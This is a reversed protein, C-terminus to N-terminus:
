QREGAGQEAQRNKELTVLYVDCLTFLGYGLLTVGGTAIGVLAAGINQPSDLTGTALGFGYAGAMFGLPYALVSGIGMGLGRWPEGAYVYGWGLGLLPPFVSGGASLAVALFPNRLTVEYSRTASRGADLEQSALQYSVRPTEASTSVTTPEAWSPTASCTIALIAIPHLLSQKM